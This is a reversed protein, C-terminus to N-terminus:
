SSGGKESEPPVPRQQTHIHPMKTPRTKKCRCMVCVPTERERERWEVGILEGKKRQTQGSEVQSGERERGRPEVWSM